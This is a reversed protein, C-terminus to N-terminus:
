SGVRILLMLVRWADGGVRNLVRIKLNPHVAALITFTRGVKVHLDSSASVPSDACNSNVIHVEQGSNRDSCNRSM